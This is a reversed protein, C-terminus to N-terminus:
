NEHVFHATAISNSFRELVEAVSHDIDAAALLVRDIQLRLPTFASASFGISTRGRNLSVVPKDSMAMWLKKGLSALESESRGGSLADAIPLAELTRRTVHFGDGNVHWWWFALYSNLAAFVAFAHEQNACTVTHLPNESLTSKSHSNPIQPALFVSLFNYATSAVHVVHAGNEFSEALECRGIGVVAHELTRTQKLLQELTTAQLHGSVKPIGSTIDGNFPTFRIDQFMQARREARWKQLPGTSLRISQELAKKSWLVIANRTKVEEGFLAHPERDFFAFRWHGLTKSMLARLASFQRGSNCAISLPLVLAGGHADPAALRILQEAFLPYVDSSERPAARLSEFKNVLSRFDKRKGINAYPPNGIIVRPGSGIDPFVESLSIADMTWARQEMDLAPLVGSKIASRLELRERRAADSTDAAPDLRLTDVNALNLRISHWAHLPQLARRQVDSMALHLLVHASADLAWPDVDLGYLSSCVLDLLDVQPSTARLTKLSAKLFVGTGCAPDLITLPHAGAALDRLAERAMYNAVDEPTYFVGEAKKKERAKKTGPEKRVSLRSGPGHPDLIYPLLQSFTEADAVEHLLEEATARSNNSLLSAIPAGAGPNFWLEAEELTAHTPLARSAIGVVWAAVINWGCLEALSRDIFSGPEAKRTAYHSKWVTSLQSRRLDAILHSVAARIPGGTKEAATALVHGSRPTALSPGAREHISAHHADFAVNGSSNFEQTM